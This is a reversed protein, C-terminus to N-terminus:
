RLTRLTISYRTQTVPRISHEWDQRAEGKMVYLSRRGVPFSIMSKRDHKTKDYPRLRFICGSMLSIGAVIDFPPADRHWNIVSGPPYETVLAEAFLAPNLKLLAATKAILFDLEGPIPLGPSAERSDFHYDVGFSMTKRKAEFGHFIFPKLDLSQAFAILLKEESEDIFGPVYRFGNVAPVVPENFLDARVINGTAYLIGTEGNERPLITL